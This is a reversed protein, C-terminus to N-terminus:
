DLMKQLRERVAPWDDDTISFWATNRVRGSQTQMHKRFIGEFQAGIRLIANRSRENLADTKLEVRQCGLSEFAYTLMLLKADTNVPTRQWAKGIWTWGIEVRKNALDVNGFRTAGVVEGTATLTTAFPLAIGREWHAIGEAVYDHMGKRTTVQYPIWTWIDADLGIRTLADVHEITLPVLTVHRGRLTVRELPVPTHLAIM